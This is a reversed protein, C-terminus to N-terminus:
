WLSPLCLPKTLGLPWPQLALPLQVKWLKQSRTAGSMDAAETMEPPVTRLGEITYRTLPITTFILISFVVAVDNVGFLM